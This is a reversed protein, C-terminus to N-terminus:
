EHSAEELRGDQLRLRRWGAGGRFRERISAEHDLLARYRSGPVAALSGPPGQEVLRGGEMVAVHDFSLTQEVDHTVCLLTAHPWWSRARDLLLRRGTRDLGRFPEDLIVLGAGPKLLSRAFRVRQGEGGSVLAGGEGLSTQLGQPLEELLPRLTAEEVARGVPGDDETGYLLNEFLSANWLQVAPDVWATNRRLDDLRAATLPEGDVLVRGSAPVHWGLLLGVLSSKGAGSPGVIAVRRGPEVALDVEELVTHGAAVVSVKEFRLAVPPSALGPKEGAAEATEEDAAGLPELLRSTTNRLLPYQRAAIDMQQGLQPLQLAWYSLLLVRSADGPQGLHRFIIWAALGYGAVSQLLDLVVAVKELRLASRMWELLLGEHERRLPRGAGHNRAPVLGLLADLYFRGLAGAHNRVRLDRELLIPQAAMPLAFALVASLAALPAVRPDLWAIGVATFLLQFASRLFNAGLEPLLRLRYGSHCREAMDSSLRSRFYRDGLRAIKELFRLRLRVELSRGLALTRSVTAWELFLVLVLFALFAVAAGARQEWIGLKGTLDLLGRFFLAEIVTAAAGALLAGALALPTLLGDARLLRLLERVPRSSPVELAARLDDSLGGSEAEGKEVATLRGKVRVLVAGRLLVQGDTVTPIVSAYADPIERDRLVRVMGAAEHGARLGGDRVLAATMRVAADLAALPRWGPDALADDLLRGSETAPLGLAGMRARLPALFDESGAWQRWGDAPVPLGHIYAEDLLQRAPMWRRGVAPDMVQVWSGLRRWVILFHTVGLASTVVLLAPLASAEPILLHDLPLMVQEADLGLRVAVAELTDISTGDLDTQCAERLRDYGVAVGFGECLCKLSAPGCDMASSQVVEPAFLRRASM